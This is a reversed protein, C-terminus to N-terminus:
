SGIIGRERRELWDLVNPDTIADTGRPPEESPATALPPDAPADKEPDM